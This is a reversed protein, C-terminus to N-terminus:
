DPFAAIQLPDSTLISTQGEGIATSAVYREPNIGTPDGGSPAEATSATPDVEMRVDQDGWIPDQSIGPTARDIAKTKAIPPAPM